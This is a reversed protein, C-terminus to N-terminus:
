LQWIVQLTATACILVLPHSHSGQESIAWVGSSQPTDQTSHIFVFSYLKVMNM